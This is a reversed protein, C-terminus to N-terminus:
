VDADGGTALDPREDAVDANQATTASDHFSVPIAVPATMATVNPSAEGELWLVFPIRVDEMHELGRQQAPILPM